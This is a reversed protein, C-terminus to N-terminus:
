RPPTDSLYVGPRHGGFVDMGGAAVCTGSLRDRPTKLRCLERSSKGRFLPLAAQCSVCASSFFTLSPWVIQPHSVEPSVQKFRIFSLLIVSAGFISVLSPMLSALYLTKVQAATFGEEPQFPSHSTLAEKKM